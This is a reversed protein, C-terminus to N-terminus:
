AVGAIGGPAPESAKDNVLPMVDNPAGDISFICAASTRVSQFGDWRLARYVQVWANDVDPMSYVSLQTFENSGHQALCTRIRSYVTQLTVAAAGEAPQLTM